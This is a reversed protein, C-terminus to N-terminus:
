VHSLSLSLSLSFPPPSLCLLEYSVLLYIASVAFIMPFLALFSFRVFGQIVLDYAKGVGDAREFKYVELARTYYPYMAPFMFLASTTSFVCMGSIVLLGENVQFYTTGLFQLFYNLPFLCRSLSLSFPSFFSFTHSMPLSTHISSQREGCVGLSNFWHTYLFMCVLNVLLQLEVRHM